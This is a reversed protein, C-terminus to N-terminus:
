PRPVMVTLASPRISIKVPTSGIVSGDVEVRRPPDTDIRIKCARARVVRGGDSEGPGSQRLAEWGALLAPLPGDARIVFVDLIGDDARVGRVKIGPPVRGFNAVLVQAADTTTRVGDLTITHPANRINGTERIASALYAIKGWRGKQTPDTGEMVDADFGVGCAVTFSRRKGAVTIRGLDIRRPQGTLATRVADEPSHPLKLNGALLNGTGTPVIGLPIGSGALATAVQLVMGDGGVCVVLETGAKLARSTERRVDRKRWVIKHDVSLGGAELLRRVEHVVDAVPHGKRVRGIV